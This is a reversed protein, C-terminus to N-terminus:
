WKLREQYFCTKTILMVDIRLMYGRGMLSFSNMIDQIRSGAGAYHSVDMQLKLEIFDPLMKEGTLSPPLHMTCMCERM